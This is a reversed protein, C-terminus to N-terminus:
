ARAEDAARLAAAREQERQHEGCARQVGRLAALLDEGRRSM